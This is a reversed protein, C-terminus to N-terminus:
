DRRRAPTKKESNLDFNWMKEALFVVCVIVRFVHIGGRWWGDREGRDEDDVEAPVHEYLPLVTGVDSARVDVLELRFNQVAM